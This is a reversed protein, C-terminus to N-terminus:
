QGLVIPDYQVQQDMRVLKGVGHHETAKGEPLCAHETTLSKERVYHVRWKRSHEEEIYGTYGVKLHWQTFKKYENWHFPGKQYFLMRHEGTKYDIGLTMKRDTGDLFYKGEFVVEGESNDVLLVGGRTNKTRTLPISFDAGDPLYVWSGKAAGLTEQAREHDFFDSAKKKQKEDDGSFIFGLAIAVVCIILPKLNRLSNNM